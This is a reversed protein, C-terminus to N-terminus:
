LVVMQLVHRSLPHEVLVSGRHIKDLFTAGDLSNKTSSFVRIFAPHTLGIFSSKKRVKRSLSNSNISKRKHQTRNYKTGPTNCRTRQARTAKRGSHTIPRPGFGGRKIDIERYVHSEATSYQPVRLCHKLRHLTFHQMLAADHTANASALLHM